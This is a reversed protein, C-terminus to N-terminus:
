FLGLAAVEAASLDIGFMMSLRLRYVRPDTIEAATEDDGVRRRYHRDTLSAFGNPLAISVIRHTTFRTDPATATWHNAQALDVDSVPDTRSATNRSRARTGRRATM